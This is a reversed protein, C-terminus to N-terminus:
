YSVPMLFGFISVKFRMASASDKDELKKLLEDMHPRNTHNLVGENFLSLCEPHNKYYHLNGDLVCRIKEYLKNPREGKNFVHGRENIKKSM